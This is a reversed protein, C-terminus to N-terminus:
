AVVCAALAAATDAVPLRVGIVLLLCVVLGILLLAARSM